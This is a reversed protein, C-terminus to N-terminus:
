VMIDEEKVEDGGQRRLPGTIMLSINHILGQPFDEAVNAYADTMYQSLKDLSM